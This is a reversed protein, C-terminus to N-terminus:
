ALGVPLSCIGVQCVIQVQVDFFINHALSYFHTRRQTICSPLLLLFLSAHHIARTPKAQSQHPTLFDEYQRGTFGAVQMFLYRRCHESPPNLPLRQSCGLLLSTSPSSLNGTSRRSFFWSFSLHRLYLYFLSILGLPELM